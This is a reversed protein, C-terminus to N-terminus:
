DQDLAADIEDQSAAAVGMAAAMRGLTIELGTTRRQLDYLTQGYGGEVDAVRSELARVRQEITHLSSAM